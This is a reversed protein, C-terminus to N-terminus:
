GSVFYTIKKGEDITSKLRIYFTVYIFHLIRTKYYM